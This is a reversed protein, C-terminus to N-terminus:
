IAYASIIPNIPPANVVSAKTGCATLAQLVFCVLSTEMQHIRVKVTPTKKHSTYPIKIPEKGTMAAFAVVSIKATITKINFILYSPKYPRNSIKGFKWFM